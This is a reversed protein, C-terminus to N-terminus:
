TSPQRFCCPRDAAAPWCCNNLLLQEVVSHISVFSVGQIQGRLSTLGSSFFRLQKKKKEPVPPPRHRRCSSPLARFFFETFRPREFVVICCNDSLSGHLQTVRYFSPLFGSVCSFGRSIGNSSPLFETFALFSDSFSRCFETSGSATLTFGLLVLYM